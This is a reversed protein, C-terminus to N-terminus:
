GQKPENRPGFQTGRVNWRARVFWVVGRCWRQDRQQRENGVGPDKRCVSLCHFGWETCDWRWGWGVSVGLEYSFFVWNRLHVCCRCYRCIGEEVADSLIVKTVLKCLKHGKLVNFPKPWPIPKCCSYHWQFLIMNLNSARLSAFDRRARNTYLMCNRLIATNYIVGALKSGSQFWEKLSSNRSWIFQRWETVSWRSESPAAVCVFADFFQKSKVTGYSPDFSIIDNVKKIEYHLWHRHMYPIRHASWLPWLVVQMHVALLQASCLHNPIHWPTLVTMSLSLGHKCILM